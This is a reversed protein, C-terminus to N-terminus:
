FREWNLRSQRRSTSRYSLSLLVAGGAIFIITFGLMLGQDGTGTTALTPLAVPQSNSAPAAVPPSPAPDAVPSNSVDATWKAFLTLNSSPTISDGPQYTVGTGDSLTNWGSFTFGSKALNGSNQAVTIAGSGSSNSPASGSDSNNINYSLTRTAQSPAQPNNPVVAGFTEGNRTVIGLGDDVLLVPSLSTDGINFVAFGLDYDGTISVEYTSYQWGTSGFSGTSYDGTGPNTFGLLAYNQVQNNVTVTPTGVGKYILSTVSGDNYPAYDTGIYNWAMQYTTGATLTVTKRLWAANTPNTGGGCGSSVAQSAIMDKIASNDSSSMGLSVLSADFTESGTPQIAAATTGFPGFAWTAATVAPACNLRAGRAGHSFQVTGSIIGAGLGNGTIQTFTGRTSSADWGTLSGAEFGTDTIASLGSAMAPASQFTSVFLSPAM